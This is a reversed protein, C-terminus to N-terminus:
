SSQMVSDVHPSLSSSSGHRSLIRAIPRHPNNMEHAGNDKSVLHYWRLEREGMQFYVRAQYLVDAGKGAQSLSLRTPFCVCDGSTLGVWWGLELCAGCGCHWGLPNAYGLPRRM